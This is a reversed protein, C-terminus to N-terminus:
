ACPLQRPCAPAPKTPVARTGQGLRRGTSIQDGEQLGQRLPAFTSPHPVGLPQQEQHGDQADQATATAGPIQLQGFCGAIGGKEIQKLPHFQLLEKPQEPLPHQNLDSNLVLIELLQDTIAFGQPARGRLGIADVASRPKDGLHRDVGPFQAHRDGLGGKVRTFGVLASGEFGQEAVKLEVANQDLGIGQM